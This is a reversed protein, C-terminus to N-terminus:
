KCSRNELQKVKNGDRMTVELVINTSYVGIPNWFNSNGDRMTVELVHNHM